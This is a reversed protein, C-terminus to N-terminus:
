PMTLFLEDAAKMAHRQPMLRNYLVENKRALEDVNYRNYVREIANASLQKRLARNTCVQLLKAPLDTTLQEPTVLLGNIGDDVMEPTGDVSTAVVTKGMSMAELLAIPFAEWLSPLVFVDIAALVAPVDQRFPLLKVKQEIGLKSILAIAEEKLEGDGVMLLTANNVKECVQAFAEILKLPQKQLTFRAISAIIIESADIGLEKRVDAYTAFPNFKKPDISNYIIEAEFQGFLKRAEDRNAKAGCINIDAQQTLYRESKIRLAKVMPHQDVHFSWAHCTYLLPLRNSKAAYFMNSMARTGHAHVVDIGENHILAKVKKWVRVDFPKETQIVHSQIGVERLRDIMPGDTFSLVVPEFVDRNLNEVLSLLYSEGGGIKGQRIGQLIKIKEFAM